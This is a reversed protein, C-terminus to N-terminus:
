TEQKLGLIIPRFPFLNTLFPYPMGLTKWHHGQMVSHFVKKPVTGGAVGGNSEDLLPLFSLLDM